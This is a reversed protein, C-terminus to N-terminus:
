YGYYSGGRALIVLYAILVIVIAALGIYGFVLGATALGRGQEGTRRIQGLALHGFIIGLLGGGLGFILALIAMTNTAPSYPASGYSGTAAMPPIVTGTPPAAGGHAAAYAAEWQQVHAVRAGHQQAEFAAEREAPTPAYHQGKAIVRALYAIGVLVGIALLNFLIAIPSIGYGGLGVSIGGFGLAIPVLAIPLLAFAKAPRMRAVLWAAIAAVPFLLHIFRLAFSIDDRNVLVGVTELLIVAIPAAGIMLARVHSKRDAPLVLLGASLAIFPLSNILFYAVWYYNESAEYNSYDQFIANAAAELATPVVLVHLLGALGVAVLALAYRLDHNLYTIPVLRSPEVWSNWDGSISRLTAVPPSAPATASAPALTPPPPPPPPFASVGRERLDLAAQVDADGHQRLWDLLGEYASPNGAIIPQLDLHAAALDALDQATTAPDAAQLRQAPTSTM